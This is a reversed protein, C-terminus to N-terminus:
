PRQISELYVLLAALPRPTPTFQGDVDVPVLDGELLDGFEPMVEAPLKGRGYGDIQSLVQSIPFAGGNRTSIQTLDPAIHGGALQRPGTGHADHCATCNETFLTEGENPEPMSNDAACAALLAFAPLMTFKLYIM